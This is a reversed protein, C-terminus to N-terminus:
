SFISLYKGGSPTGPAPLHQSFVAIFNERTLPCPMKQYLLEIEDKHIQLNLTGLLTNQFDHINVLKDRDQDFIMFASEVNLQKARLAACIRLVLEQEWSKTILSDEPMPKKPLAGEHWFIKVHLTGRKENKNGHIPIISDIIENSILGNISLRTFKKKKKLKQHTKKKIYRGFGILDNLENTINAAAVLPVNDDVLMFELVNTKLYSVFNEDYDIEHIGTYDWRPSV